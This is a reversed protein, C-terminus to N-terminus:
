PKASYFFQWNSFPAEIKMGRKWNDGWVIISTPWEYCDAAFIEGRFAGSFRCELCVNGGLQQGFLCTQPRFVCFDKAKTTSFFLSTKPLRQWTLRARHSDFRASLSDFRWLNFYVSPLRLQKVHSSKTKSPSFIDSIKFPEFFIIERIFIM